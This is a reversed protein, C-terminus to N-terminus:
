LKRYEQSLGVYHKASERIKIKEEETLYRVVKAPSGMCLVGSPIEKGETVLSGAGLITYDGIKANNLVISGMGILSCNGINCGHLIVGHGITVNNGINLPAISDVHLICNDQVNTNKGVVIENTDGRIVTGFWINSNEELYVDGIIDASNAIFCNDHVNPKKENFSYIM